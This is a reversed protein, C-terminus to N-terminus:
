EGIGTHSQKKVIDAIKGNHELSFTRPYAKRFEVLDQKLKNPTSLYNLLDDLSEFVVGNKNDNVYDAINGSEKTTLVFCGAGIAEYLVFSFTEPWISWHFLVDIQNKCLSDLMATRNEPSVRVTEFFERNKGAWSGLHFWEYDPFSNFRDVVKRWIDWGKPRVALGAYAIRITEYSKVPLSQSTEKLIIHPEIRVKNDLGPFARNWLKFTNKSPAIISFPFSSFLEVVLPLQM